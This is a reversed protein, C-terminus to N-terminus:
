ATATAAKMLFSGFNTTSAATCLRCRTLMSKQGIVESYEPKKKSWLPRARGMYRFVEARDDVVIETRHYRFFPVANGGPTSIMEISRTLLPLETRTTSDERPTCWDMRTGRWSTTHPTTM